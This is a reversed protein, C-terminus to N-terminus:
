AFAAKLRALIDQREAAGGLDVEHAEALAVLDSDVMDDLVIMKPRSAATAFTGPGDAYDFKPTMGPKNYRACLDIETGDPRKGADFAPGGAVHCVDGDPGSTIFIGVLVRFKM